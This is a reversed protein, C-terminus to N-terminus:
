RWAASPRPSRRPTVKPSPLRKLRITPPSPSRWTGSGSSVFPPSPKRSLDVAYLPVFPQAESAVPMLGLFPMTPAYGAPYSSALGSRPTYWAPTSPSSSEMRYPYLHGGSRMMQGHYGGYRVESRPTRASMPLSSMTSRIYPNQMRSDYVASMDLPSIMPFGQHSQGLPMGMGGVPGRSSQNSDLRVPLHMSASAQTPRGESDVAVSVPFDAMAYAASQSRQPCNAAGNPAGATRQAEAAAIAQQAVESASSQRSTLRQVNAGMMKVTQLHSNSSQHSETGTAGAPRRPSENTSGVGPPSPSREFEESARELESQSHTRGRVLTPMGAEIHYYKACTNSRVAHKEKTLQAWAAFIIRELPEEDTGKWLLFAKHFARLRQTKLRMNEVTVDQVTTRLQALTAQIETHSPHRWPDTFDDIDVSKQKQFLYYYDRMEHLKEEFHEVSCIYLLEQFGATKTSERRWKQKSSTRKEAKGTPTRGGGSGTPSHRNSPTRSTTSGTPTHSSVPTGGDGSRNEPVFCSARVVCSPPENGDSTTLQLAFNFHEGPRVMQSIENAEDCFQAGIRAESVVHKAMERPCFQVSQQLAEQVGCWSPSNDLAASEEEHEQLILDQVNDNHAETAMLPVSVKMAVARGLFLKQGHRMPKNGSEQILQGDLVVRGEYSAKSLSLRKDDENSITCLHSTIGIGTFRIQCDKDSGIKIKQGKPLYYLLTGALSPDDAMNLLFPTNQEIGFMKQLHAQNLGGEALAEKRAEHMKESEALQEQYSQKMEAILQEQAQIQEGGGGEGRRLAELEKRLNEIIEDKKSKNQRAMTKITKVSSAFRLTSLTEAANDQAPSVAALMYTKSNGALSDKLLFTLKSARFPVTDTGVKGKSMAESLEKIVMGLTSLSKNIACGEKLVKGQAGTKSQRESGALDVLNIKANLVNRFDEEGAKPAEGQLRQLQICFVAHSRSSSANMQTASIARRRTGFDLLEQVADPGQCVQTTLNQVYVGLKPHHRVTLEPPDDKTSLLDFIHEQYIEMYSVSVHCEQSPDKDIKAKEAFLKAVTKPIVGPEEKSGLVSYTKGSGTQGYAFLCGNFGDLANTLIVDGIDTMLTDQTAFPQSKDVSWYAFDYTYTKDEKGKNLISISSENVSVACPSGLDKERQNFPRVRVAVKINEAM